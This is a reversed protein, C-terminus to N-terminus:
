KIIEFGLRQLDNLGGLDIVQSFGQRNLLQKAVASRNGSRCYLYIPNDKAVQPSKGNQINDLSLNTASKVRGAAFEEPTRVDLLLAGDALAQKLQEGSSVLQSQNTQSTPHYKKLDTPASSQKFIFYSIGGIVLVALAISALKFQKIPQQM